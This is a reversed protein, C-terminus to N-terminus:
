AEKGCKPCHFHSNKLRDLEDQLVKNEMYIEGILSESIAIEGKLRVIENADCAVCGYDITETGCDPCEGYVPM